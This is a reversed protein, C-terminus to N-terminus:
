ICLKWASRWWDEDIVHSRLASQKILDKSWAQKYIL